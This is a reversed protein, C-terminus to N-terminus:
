ICGYVARLLRAARMDRVVSTINMANMVYGFGFNAEPDALGLSGGYGGHSFARKNPGHWGQANVMYGLGWTMDGLDNLVLDRGTPQPERMREVGAPSILEWNGVSGGAALVAYMSAVARASAHGNAAPFVARRWETSNAQRPGVLPTTMAALMLETPQDAAPEPTADAAEPAADAAEPAAAAAEPTADPPEPTAAFVEDPIRWLDATRADDEPRTGIIFDGSLSHQSLPGTIEERLFATFDRGDVQSVLEGVLHGFTMAHYGSATGPEWWTPQAALLGCLKAWDYMEDSGIEERWAALGSRHGLLQRVTIEGKGEQAFEPWYKAVPADLELEGRDILLHAALSALGKTTSWVNVITDPQWPQQRESSTWGGWLDVLVETGRMVVLAAGLEHHKAFNDEFKDRVAEFGPAVTGSIAPQPHNPQTM